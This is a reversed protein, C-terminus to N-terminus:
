HIRILGADSFPEFQHRIQLLSQLCDGAVHMSGCFLLREWNEYHTNLDDSVLARM